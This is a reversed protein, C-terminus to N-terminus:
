AIDEKPLQLHALWIYIEPHLCRFESILNPLDHCPDSLDEFFHPWVADHNESVRVASQRSDNRRPAADRDKM